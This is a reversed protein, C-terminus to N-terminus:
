ISILTMASIMFKLYFLDTQFLHLDLFPAETDSTNAKNLQLEPPYILNVMGEFYPNDINLLDDLYRSTSKFAEIIEALKVDSLSTMFDREYCFLFLDAVLPACNTGMPIVVIQRYLKTGFRIYINDLFYKLAEYVNQCSWLKYRKTDESTFFAQIENYAIYPSGERKFPWEILNILKEKILNHPLTTYLTSFDYTSLSTARFGRSKLKNLVKGSNKISWYLSKGSREYVKECYIIVHNKVATLCSALLKSLETTTCSSSNAIFRAKYPRKHLKPLWYVTPLRGQREKVCVSCKLALHNCHGNM